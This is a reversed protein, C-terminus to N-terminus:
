KIEGKEKAYIEAIKNRFLWLGFCPVFISTCIKFPESKTTDINKNMDSRALEANPNHSLDIDNVQDQMSSTIIGVVSLAGYTM